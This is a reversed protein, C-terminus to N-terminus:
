CNGLFKRDLVALLSDLDVDECLVKSSTSNKVTSVEVIDTLVNAASALVVNVGELGSWVM